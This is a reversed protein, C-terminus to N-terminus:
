RKGISIPMDFMEIEWRSQEIEYFILYFRCFSFFISQFNTLKYVIFLYSYIWCKRRGNMWLGNTHKHFVNFVCKIGIIKIYHLLSMMYFTKISFCFRLLFLSIICVLFIPSHMFLLTISYYNNGKKQQKM